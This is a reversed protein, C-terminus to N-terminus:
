VAPPAAPPPPAQPVPPYAYAAGGTPAAPPPVPPAVPPAAPAAAPQQPPFGYAQGPQQPPAPYLQPQHPQAQPPQPQYPALDAPAPAPVPGPQQPPVGWAGPQPQQHPQQHPGPYGFPQAPRYPAPAGSARTVAVVLVTILAILVSLPYTLNLLLSDVPSYLERWGGLRIALVLNSVAIYGDVSTLVVAGPRAWSKGTFAGIALVLYAVTFPLSFGVLTLAHETFDFGAAALLYGPGQQVLYYGLVALAAIVQVLMLVGIGPLGGPRPKQPPQGFAM